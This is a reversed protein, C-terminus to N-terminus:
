RRGLPLGYSFAIVLNGTSNKGNTAGFSAALRSSWGKSVDNGGNDRLNPISSGGRVGVTVEGGQAIASPCCLLLFTQCLRTM